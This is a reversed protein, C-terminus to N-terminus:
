LSREEVLDEWEILELVRKVNKNRGCVEAVLPEQGLAFKGLLVAQPRVNVECRRCHRDPVPVLPGGLRRVADARVGRVSFLVSDLTTNDSCALSREEVGVVIADRDVFIVVM